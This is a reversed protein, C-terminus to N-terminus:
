QEPPVPAQVGSEPVDLGAAWVIGNLLFRRYDDETRMNDHFDVGGYVFSRGGDAREYAWGAVQPGVANTAPTGLVLDTRRPDDPLFFRSFIEDRYTWPQIGRLVPHEPALPTMTWEDTPNRSCMQVWLGGLWNMYYGRAAWNEAWLAYHFIVIGVGSKVIEDFERLYATTEEDYGRGNTTPNPPFLPHTETELRDSSSHIVIVAADRLESLDRPARGVHVRTRVGNLNTANELAWALARLDKEHEHRGPSGHDKPGALFVIKTEQAAAESARPTGFLVVFILVLVSTGPRAFRRVTSMIAPTPTRHV